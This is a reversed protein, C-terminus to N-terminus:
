EWWGRAPIQRFANTACHVSGTHSHYAAREDVFIIERYGARALEARVYAELIDVRGLGLDVVPGHAQATIIREGDVLANVHNSTLPVSMGRAYDRYLVPLQVWPATPDVTFEFRDGERPTEGEWWHALVFAMRSLTVYDSARTGEGDAVWLNEGVVRHEAIFRTEDSFTLRFVRARSDPFFGLLPGGRRLQATSRNHPDATPASAASGIGVLEWLAPLGEPAMVRLLNLERIEASLAGQILEGVPVGEPGYPLMAQLMPATPDQQSAILLLAWAVEADAVLVHAGDSGYSFLEDVHGVALLSTDVPVGGQLGQAELFRILDSQMAAGHLFRAPQGPVAELNGGADADEFPIDQWDTIIGVGPGLLHERTFANLSRMTAPDFGETLKPLALLERVAGYPTTDQSLQGRPLGLVVWMAGYPAQTYGIEYGDQHWRDLAEVEALRGDSYLDRLRARMAANEDGLDEIIVSVGGPGPAAIPQRHDFLALPAVQMRVRSQRLRLPGYWVELVIEVSAGYRIGEVGLHLAGPGALLAIDHQSPTPAHTFVAEPGTTPGILAEDGPQIVHDNGMPLTPLFLRLREHAPTSRFYAAEGKPQAVRLVVRVGKPLQGLGPRRMVLMALDDPDPWANVREDPPEDGPLYDFDGGPWNDPLGDGDDDDANALVIAGREGIAIETRALRWLTVPSAWIGVASAVLCAALLVLM